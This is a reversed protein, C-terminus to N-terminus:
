PTQINQFLIKVIQHAGIKNLSPAVNQTIELPLFTATPTPPVPPIPPTPTGGGSSSGGGGNCASISLTALITLLTSLKKTQKM